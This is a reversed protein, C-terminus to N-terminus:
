FIENRFSDGGRRAIRKNVKKAGLLIAVGEPSGITLMKSPIAIWTLLLLIALKLYLKM